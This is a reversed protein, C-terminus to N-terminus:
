LKTWVTGFEYLGPNTGTYSFTDGSTAATPMFSARVGEKLTIGTTALGAATHIHGYTSGTVSEMLMNRVAIILATPATTEFYIPESGTIAVINNVLIKGVLGAFSMVRTFNEININTTLVKGVTTAATTYIIGRCKNLYINNLMIADVSGTSVYIFANPSTSVCDYKSNSVILKGITGSCTIGYINRASTNNLTLNDLLVIGVASTIDIFSYYGSTNSKTFTCNTVTLNAVPISIGLTPYNGALNDNSIACDKIKVEGVNGNSDGIMTIGNVGDANGSVNCIRIKNILSGKSYLKIFNYTSDIHGAQATSSFVGDIVIDTIAGYFGNNGGSSFSDDANLAIMDDDTTGFINRIVGHKAPGNIHIGDSNSYTSTRVQNFTLNEFIFDTIGYFWNAFKTTTYSCDSIRLRITNTIKIGYKVNIINIGQISVNTLSDGTIGTINVPDTSTITADNGLIVQNSKVVLSSSIKYTKGKTLVVIDNATLCSSIATTDDAVGDGVAGYNEPTAYNTKKILTDLTEDIIKIKPKAM